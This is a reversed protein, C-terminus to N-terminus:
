AASRRGTASSSITSARTRTLPKKAIDSIDTIVERLLRSLCSAWDLRRAALASARASFGSLKRDVTCIPIVRIPMRVPRNPPAAIPRAMAPPSCSSNGPSAAGAEKLRSPCGWGQDCSSPLVRATTSIVKRVRTNPSSTGLRSAIVAGSFMAPATARGIDQSARIAKGNTHSSECLVRRTSRRSPRPRSSAPVMLSSSIRMSTASLWSCPTISAWSRSMTLRTIRSPSRVASLRIVGRLRIAQSSARPESSSFRSDM